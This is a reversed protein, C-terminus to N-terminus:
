TARGVDAPKGEQITTPHVWLESNLITPEYWQAGCVECTHEIMMTANPKEKTECPLCKLKGNRAGCAPCKSHPDIVLNRIRRAYLFARIREIM